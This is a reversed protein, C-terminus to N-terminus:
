TRRFWGTFSLRTRQAALVEHPVRESLFCALTGGAPLLKAAPAADGAGAYLCLEGGDGSEWADNLYLVLSVVRRDDDRFRDVHRAYGAGAPYAAYHGEFDQLGLYTAANIAERLATLEKRQLAEALPATGGDVWMVEDGRIGTRREGGKGIGAPHFRGAARLSEAEQRLSTVRAPSLFGLCCMWDHTAFGEALRTIAAATGGAEDTSFSQPPHM